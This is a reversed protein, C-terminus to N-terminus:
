VDGRRSKMLFFWLVALSGFVLTLQMIMTAPDVTFRVGGTTFYVMAIALVIILFMTLKKSGEEM